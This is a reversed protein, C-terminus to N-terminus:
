KDEKGWVNDYYEPYLKKGCEPCIAHSFLAESHETIYTEIQKWYGKDDRIKKCSACIPLLGSLQKVKALAEQLDVVLKNRETEIRKRESIDHAIKSAGVIRGNEDKIASFTLSVQILTGDKRMRVTEFNEINAGTSIRGLIDPIEDTHGPPLLVSIHKGVIEQATYGFIEEAGVNWTEIIGSLDESIIADEASQVIAALHAMMKEAEKIETLDIGYAYNKDGMTIFGWLINKKSGDKCTVVSEMPEIPSQTEISRKVRKTWEESLQRRYIEDPYALPLWESISPVDEMTYGFLKIFTPNLYEGKQEIGVNLYVALPLTEVMTKFKTESERLAEEVRKRETIDVLTGLSAVYNGDPDYLAVANLLGVFVKGDKRVMEYELDRIYGREKFQLFNERYSRLSAATIVDSWKMRRLVEDRTYGLWALETDNIRQFVGDKDLSHYGCPANNYLDEIEMASKHLADEALKRFNLHMNFSSLLQGVEDYQTVPIDQLPLREETIDKILKSATSLPLLAQRIVLWVLLSSLLSLGLAISYAWNRMSRIPLFAIEAPLGVRIFWGPTPIHKASMLMRIHRSNVSIGSGEFGSMFRDFLPNVGIKPTPKMIRTPDSGTIYIRYKPSVLLLRDLFDKYEANEISGLLAPDSVLTYGALVAILKGSPSLVPVAFSIVTKKSFLGIWPKGVVPKGTTVVEKFYELESRSSGARGQLIPYDAIGIGERSIVEVGTQFLTALLPKDRLFKRLKDPNAVLEPTIMNAIHTLSNIRFKVQSEISDAIYSAISFQQTELQAAMEHELRNSIFFTLAWISCLFLFLVM